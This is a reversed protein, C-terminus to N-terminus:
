FPLAPEGILNAHKIKSKYEEKLVLISPDIKFVGKAQLGYTKELVQLFMEKSIVKVAYDTLIDDEVMQRILSDHAGAYSFHTANTYSSMTKRLSKVNIHNWGTIYKLKETHYYFILTLFTKSKVVNCNAMIELALSSNEQDSSQVMTNLREYEAISLVVSDATSEKILEEDFVLEDSNKIMWLFDDIADKKIFYTYGSEKNTDTWKRFWKAAPKNDHGWYYCGDLSVVSDDDLHDYLEKVVKLADHDMVNQDICEQYFVYFSQKSLFQPLRWRSETIKDFYSHSVISLDSKDKDRVTRSGYKEHIINLKERPLTLHPFRYMKADKLRATDFSGVNLHARWMKASPRWDSSNGLYIGDEEWHLCTFTFKDNEKLNHPNIKLTYMKRNEM